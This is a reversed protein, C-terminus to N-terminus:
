VLVASASQMPLSTSVKRGEVGHVSAKLMLECGARVPRKLSVNVQATFGSWPVVTGTHCFGMWGVADDFLACAAGGSSLHSQVLVFALTTTAGHCFLKHSECASTFVAVGILSPYTSNSSPPLLAYATIRAPASNSHVYDEGCWGNSRRYSADHWEPACVLTAACSHSLIDSFWQPLKTNSLAQGESCLFEASSPMSEDICRKVRPMLADITSQSIHVNHESLIAHLESHLRAEIARGYTLLHISDVPAAMACFAPAIFGASSPERSKEVPRCSQM